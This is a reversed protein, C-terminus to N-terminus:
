GVGRLHWVFPLLLLLAFFLVPLAWGVLILDLKSPTAPRRVMILLVLMAYVSLSYLFVERTAGTDMVGGCFFVLVVFWLVACFISSLYGDNFTKPASAAARHEAKEQEVPITRDTRLRRARITFAIALIFSMAFCILFAPFTVLLTWGRSAIETIEREWYINHLLVFFIAATTAFQIKASLGIRMRSRGVTLFAATTGAVTLLFIAFAWSHQLQM